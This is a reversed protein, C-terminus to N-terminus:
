LNEVKSGGAEERLTLESVLQQREEEMLLLDSLIADRRSVLDYLDSAFQGRHVDVSIFDDRTLLGRFWPDLSPPALPSSPLSDVEEQSVCRDEVADEKSADKTSVVEDEETEEESAEAILRQEKVGAGDDDGRNDQYHRQQSGAEEQKPVKNESREKKSEEEKVNKEEAPVNPTSCMLKFFSLSLPIDVRRGDQICKALFMGLLEFHGCIRELEPSYEPIPAPFLGSSAQIYYGPPKVGM